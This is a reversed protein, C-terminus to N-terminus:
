QGASFHARRNKQYCAENAETCTPREKGFSVTKLKDGAVGLQVLFEKAATARRDGLGLNYEASGREDCHGEVNVTANPYKDRFIGKLAESDRTLINRADERIESKDFDFPADQLQQALLDSLSITAVPPPPPPPPPPATVNVTATASDSGGPGDAKATYTTTATPCVRQTGSGAVKGVGPTINVETANAANWRLTACQGREVTTPEASFTISPRPPPPAPAVAVPKPPPPPAPAKKKCGTVGVALTLALMLAGINRKTM